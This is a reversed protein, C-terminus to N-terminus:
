SIYLRCLNEQSKKWVFTLRLHLYFFIYHSVNSIHEDNAIHIVSYQNGAFLAIDIVKNKIQM